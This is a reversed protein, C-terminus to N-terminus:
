STELWICFTTGLGIKSIVQIKHNLKDCVRLVIDAGIGYGSNKYEQYNREFIKQPYKIGKGNDSICLKHSKLSIDVYPKTDISYKCSNSVINDIVKVIAEKNTYVIKDKIDIKFEIHPYITKYRKVIDQVINLLDINSKKIDKSLLIKLSDYLSAIHNASSNILDIQATLEGKTDKKQLMKTNLLISAIPTNIDHILDGLFRDLHSITDRMPKLSFYALLYSILSFVVILFLKIKFVFDYADDIKKDILKADISVTYYNSFVKYYRNAIKVPFNSDVNVCVTMEYAYGDQHYKFKNQQLKLFYQYMQMTAQQYINTKQQEFYLAGLVLVFFVMSLFYGFYIKYFSSNKM